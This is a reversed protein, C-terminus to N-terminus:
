ASPWNLEEYGRRCPPGESLKVRRDTLDILVSTVTMTQEPLPLSTDPHRCVSDPQNTHDSLVTQFASLETPDAMDVVEETVRALRTKSTSPVLEAYDVADFDPSVFHNTHLLVGQENPAIRHWKQANGPRAEVDVAKGSEDVLLYNASSARSASKLRELAEETTHCGLLARLLVHYPVAAEGLDETCALANTMVALGSSNLGLKALLGAEVVTVFAPGDEPAAQLVVVTDQAFPIWDWNQGAVVHQGPAVSAIATCEAPAPLTIANRVRASYLIETRVNIALVDEIALGAGDAIGALEDVLEPAFDEIAPLFQKAESTARQWDWGAYHQFVRAYAEVSRHVRDRTQEGYQRGCEYAAGTVTILPFMPMERTDITASM